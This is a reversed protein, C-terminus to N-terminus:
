VLWEITARLYHMARTRFTPVLRGGLPIPKAVQAALCADLGLHLHVL